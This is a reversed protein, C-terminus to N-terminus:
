DYVHCGICCSIDPAAVGQCAECFWMSCVGCARMKGVDEGQLRKLCCPCANVGDILLDDCDLDESISYVRM